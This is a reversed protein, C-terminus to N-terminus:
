TEQGNNWVEGLTLILRPYNVEVSTVKWKIGAWTAYKINSMNAYTYPTAIISIRNSIKIDDNVKDANQSRWVTQKLDGRCTKETITPQWDGPSIEETVSFGLKGCYKAM